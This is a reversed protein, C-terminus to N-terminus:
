SGKRENEISALLGAVEEATIGYQAATDVIDLLVKKIENRKEEKLDSRSVRAVFSGLGPRTVLWGETELDTYARKVTIVSVKLEQAMERISPLKEEEKLDGSAIAIKIQEMIQRFIPEPNTYSIVILM